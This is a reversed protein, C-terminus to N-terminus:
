FQENWMIAGRVTIDAGAGVPRGSLSLLDNANLIINLDSIDITTSLGADVFFTALVRGGTILPGQATAPNSVTYSVVSTDTSIDIYNSSSFTPNLTLSFIADTGAADALSVMLPQVYKRNTIGSFTPKNQITVINTGTLDVVQERYISNLLGTNILEGEVFAAMSPVKVTINTNNSGNKAQIYLPLSPNFLTTVTSSNAYKIQHVLSLSGLAPNEVFFNIAGFGLWQYQIKYVNGLTPDLIMSSSGTGDLPDSNWTSQHIWYETGNDRRLISFVTGSYGFFLGDTESGLGVLQTSNEKGTTFISTFFVLGGQGTRYHLNNKSVLTASTNTATASCVAFPQSQYVTANGTVSVSVEDRNINYAFQLQIRPSKTATALEGFATTNLPQTIGTYAM